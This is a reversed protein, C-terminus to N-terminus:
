HKEIFKDGWTKEKGENVAGLIPTDVRTVALPLKNRIQHFKEGCVVKTSILYRHRWSLSTNNRTDRIEGVGNGRSNRPIM